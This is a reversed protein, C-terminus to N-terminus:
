FLLINRRDISDATTLLWEFKGIDFCFFTFIDCRKLGCGALIYIPV